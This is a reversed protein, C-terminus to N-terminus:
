MAGEQFIFVMLSKLFVHALSCWHLFFPFCDFCNGVVLSLFPSFNLCNGESLHFGNLERFFHALVSIRVLPFHDLCSGM